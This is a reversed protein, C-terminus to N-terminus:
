MINEILPLESMKLHLLQRKTKAYTSSFLATEKNQAYECMQSIDETVEDVKSHLLFLNLTKETEEWQELTNTCVEYAKKYERNSIHIEASDLMAVFKEYNKNVITFEAIGFSLAIVLLSVAVWIRKM